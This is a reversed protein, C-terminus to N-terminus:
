RRCIGATLFLTGSGKGGALYPDLSIWMEGSGFADPRPALAEGRRAPLPPARGTTVVEIAVRVAAPGGFRRNAEAICGRGGEM